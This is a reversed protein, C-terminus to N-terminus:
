ASWGTQSFNVAMATQAAVFWPGLPRLRMQAAGWRGIERASALMFPEITGVEM